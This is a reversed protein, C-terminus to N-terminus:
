WEITIQEDVIPFGTENITVQKNNDTDNGM